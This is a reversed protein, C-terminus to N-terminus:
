PAHRHHLRFRLSFASQALLAMPRTPAVGIAAARSEKSGKCKERKVCDRDRDRDRDHDQLYYLVSM